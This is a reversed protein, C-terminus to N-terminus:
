GGQVSLSVSASVPVGLFSLPIGRGIPDWLLLFHGLFMTDRTLLISAMRVRVVRVLALLVVLVTSKLRAPTFLGVGSRRSFKAM